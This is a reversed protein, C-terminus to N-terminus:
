LHAAQLDVRKRSTVVDAEELPGGGVAGAQARLVSYDLIEEAKDQVKNAKARFITSLRRLMTM